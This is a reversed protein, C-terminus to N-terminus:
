DKKVSPAPTLSWSGSVCRLYYNGQQRANLQIGDLTMAQDEYQVYAGNEVFIYGLYPNPTSITAGANIKLTGGNCIKLIGEKGEIGELTITGNIEATGKVRIQTIGADNQQNTGLYISAGSAVTLKKTTFNQNHFETDVTVEDFVFRNILDYYERGLETNGDPNFNEINQVKFVDNLVARYRALWGASSYSEPNQVRDKYLYWVRAAEIVDLGDVGDSTTVMFNTAQPDDAKVEVTSSGLPFVSFALALAALVAILRKKIEKM